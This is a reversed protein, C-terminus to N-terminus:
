SMLSENKNTRPVLIKAISEEHRNSTNNDSGTADNRLCTSPVSSPASSMEDDNEKPAPKHLNQFESDFNTWISLVSGLIFAVIGIFIFIRELYAIEYDRKQRNLEVKYWVDDDRDGNDDPYSPLLCSKSFNPIYSKRSFDYLPPSGIQIRFLSFVYKRTERYSYTLGQGDPYVVTEKERSINVDPACLNKRQM